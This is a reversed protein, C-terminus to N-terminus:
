LSCDAGDDSAPKLSEDSQEDRKKREGEAVNAYERKGLWGDLRCCGSPVTVLILISKVFGLAIFTKM